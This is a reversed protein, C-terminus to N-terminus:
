DGRRKCFMIIKKKVIIVESSLPLTLKLSTINRQVTNDFVCLSVCRPLTEEFHLTRSTTSAVSYVPEILSCAISSSLEAATASFLSVLMVLLLLLM